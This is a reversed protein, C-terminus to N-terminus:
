IVGTASVKAITPCGFPRRFRAVTNAARVAGDARRLMNPPQDASEIPRFCVIMIESKIRKRLTPSSELTMATHTEIETIKFGIANRTVFGSTSVNPECRRRIKPPQNVKILVVKTRYATRGDLVTLM